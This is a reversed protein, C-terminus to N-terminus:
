RRVGLTRGRRRGGLSQWHAGKDDIIVRGQGGEHSAQELLIAVGHVDGGVRLVAPGQRHDVVVVRDDEVEDQGIAVANRHELVQAAFAPLRRDDHQGARLVRVHGHPREVRAGIVVEGLRDVEPLELGADAGQHAAAARLPRLLEGHAVHDEVPQGAVHEDGAPLERDRRALEGQELM